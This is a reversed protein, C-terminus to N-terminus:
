KSSAQAFSWKDKGTVFFSGILIIFLHITLILNQTLIMM